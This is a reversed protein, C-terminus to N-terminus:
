VARAGASPSSGRVEHIFDAMQLRPEADADVLVLAEDALDGAGVDAVGVLPDLQRDDVLGFPEGGGREFEQAVLVVALVQRDDQDAHGADVLAEAM